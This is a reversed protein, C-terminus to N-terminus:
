GVVYESQRSVLVSVGDIDSGVVARASFEATDPCSRFAYTSSTPHPEVNVWWVGREIISIVLKDMVRSDLIPDLSVIHGAGACAAGTIIDAAGLDHFPPSRAM